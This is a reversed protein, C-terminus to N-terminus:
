ADVNLEGDDLRGTRTMNGPKAQPGGGFLSKILAPAAMFMIVSSQIISIIEMPVRAIDQMRTGGSRLFGFLLSTFIIGVPHNNALLSLAIGDFGFGPSLVGSLYYDVGLIQIAGGFGALAGSLGFVILYNLNVNLGAYRAARTNQGVIRIQLGRTTRFLFWALLIAVLVALFVGLNLRSPYEFFRPLKASDAIMQSVPKSNDPRRIPGSLLWDTLLFAVYNMMITTIIESARYRVKLIAPLLTWLAGGLSGALLCVTIHLIPPLGTIGYGAVVAFVAGMMLQGETGINFLGCRFAIAFSLGSLIFPTSTVLSDFLPNFAKSISATNGIALARAMDPLRGFAGSLLAGYATSASSWAAALTTAFGGAVFVLITTVLISVTLLARRSVLWRIPTWSQRYRIAIWIGVGVVLLFALNLLSFGQADRRVTEIVGSDTVVVLLSGAFFSVLLALLPMRLNSNASGLFARFGNQTPKQKM